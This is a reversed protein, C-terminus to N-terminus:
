KRKYMKAFPHRVLAELSGEKAQSKSLLELAIPM